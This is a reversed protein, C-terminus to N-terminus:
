STTKSLPQCEYRRTRGARMFTVGNVSTSQARGNASAVRAVGRRRAGNMRRPPATNPGSSSAVGATAPVVAALKILQTPPALLKKPFM